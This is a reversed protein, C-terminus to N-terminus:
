DHAIPRNQEYVNCTRSVVTLKTELVKWVCRSGFRPGKLHQTLGTLNYTGRKAM